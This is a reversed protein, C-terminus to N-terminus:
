LRELRDILRALTRPPIGPQNGAAVAPRAPDVWYWLGEDSPRPCLLRRAAAPDSHLSVGHREALRAALLNQLTGRLEGDFSAMSRTGGLLGSRKRWYGAFPMSVRGIGPLYDDGAAPEAPPLIVRLVALGLAAAATLVVSAGAPGAVAYVAATSAAVFSVAIVIEPVADRWPRGPRGAPQSTMRVGRRGPRGRKNRRGRKSRGPEALSAALETLAQEAVERHADTLERTSFRAEYFVSTLRVAARGRVIGASAARALLEDPTEAIGRTAGARALSQEMALYCAIIAGRADDLERLALWGYEVARRLRAEGDDDAFEATEAPWAPVPPRRGKLLMLVCAVIAALLVATLVADIVTGALSGAAHASVKPLQYPKLPRPPGSETPQPSPSRHHSHFDRTVLYLVPVALAAAGLISRLVERLRTALSNERPVRVTRLVMVLLLSLVVAELAAAVPLEAHAYPGNLALPSLSGRLGAAVLVVLLAAVAIRVRQYGGVGGLWSGAGSPRRSAGGPEADRNGREAGRAGGPPRGTRSRGQTM